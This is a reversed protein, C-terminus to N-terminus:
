RGIKEMEFAESIDDFSYKGSISCHSSDITGEYDISIPHTDYTKTFKIKQGTIQGQITSRWNPIKAQTETINPETIVGIIKDGNKTLNLQFYLKHNEEVDKSSMFLFGSHETFKRTFLYYGSWKGSLCSEPTSTSKPSPQLNIKTDAVAHHTFPFNLLGLLLYTLNKDSLKM